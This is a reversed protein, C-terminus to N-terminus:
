MPSSSIPPTPKQTSWAELADAAQAVEYGAQKLTYAVLQRMSPSDDVTLITATM